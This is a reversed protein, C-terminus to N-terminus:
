MGDRTSTFTPFVTPPSLSNLCTETGEEHRSHTRRVPIVSTLVVRVCMCVCGGEGIGGEGMCQSHICLSQHLKYFLLVVHVSVVKVWASHIIAYLSICSISYCYWM